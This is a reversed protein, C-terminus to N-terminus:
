TASFGGLLDDMIGMKLKRLKVLEERDTLQQDRVASLRWLFARQESVDLKPFPCSRVDDGNISAQSIASKARTRFYKKVMPSGLWTEVFASMARNARLKCRMMNSEFVTPEMLNGVATSKGVLEPTNVRNILIDGAALGYRDAEGKGLSVRLLNRTLDSPGGKFSDIRVIPTGVLGYTSGPKYVGNQPGFALIEEFTGCDVDALEAMVASGLDELKRISAEIAREQASVADIADAIRRQERLSPCPLRVSKIESQPLQFQGSTGRLRLVIQDRVSPVSLAMGLFRPDIVDSAPVLRMILDSLMLRSPAQDVMCVSGVLDRSGNVRVVLVDGRHIELEPRPAVTSPLRKAKTSDFRGSTVAGLRIVGWEGSGPVAEPGISAVGVDLRELVSELTRLRSSMEDRM